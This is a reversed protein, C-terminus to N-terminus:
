SDSSTARSRRVIHEDVTVAVIERGTAGLERGTLREAAVIAHPGEDVLGAYLLYGAIVGLLRDGFEESHLLM